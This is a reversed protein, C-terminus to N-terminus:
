FGIGMLVIANKAIKAFMAFKVGMIWLNMAAVGMKASM